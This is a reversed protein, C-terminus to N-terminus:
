KNQRGVKIVRRKLEDRKNKNEGKEKEEEEEKKRRM